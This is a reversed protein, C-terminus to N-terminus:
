LVSRVVAVLYVSGCAAISVAASSCADNPQMRVERLAAQALARSPAAARQGAPSLRSGRLRAVM